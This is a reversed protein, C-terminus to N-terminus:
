FQPLHELQQILKTEAAQVKSVLDNLNNAQTSMVLDHPREQTKKLEIRMTSALHEREVSGIAIVFGAKGLALAEFKKGELDKVESFQFDSLDEPDSSPKITYSNCDIISM